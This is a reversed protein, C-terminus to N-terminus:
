ETLEFVWNRDQRYVETLREEQALESPDLSLRPAGVYVHTIGHRELIEAL